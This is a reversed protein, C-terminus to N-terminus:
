HFNTGPTPETEVARMILKHDALLVRAAETVSLGRDYLPRANPDMGDYDYTYGDWDLWIRDSVDKLWQEYTM